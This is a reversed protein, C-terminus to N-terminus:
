EELGLLMRLTEETNSLKLPALKEVLSNIYFLSTTDYLEGRKGTKDSFDKLGYVVAKVVVNNKVKYAYNLAMNIVIPITKTGYTICAFLEDDNDVVKIIDAFLKIITEADESDNKKIPKLTYEFGKEKSINDLEWLFMDYNSDVAANGILISIIEITEGKEAFNAILPIIPFATEKNYTFKENDMAKYLMPSLRNQLSIATIYKKM